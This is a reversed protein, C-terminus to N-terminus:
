ATMKQENKELRTYLIGNKELNLAGMLGAKGALLHIQNAIQKSSFDHTTNIAMVVSQNLLHFVDFTYGALAAPPNLYEQKFHQIFEPNMTSVLATSHEATSGWALFNNKGDAIKPENALSFHLINNSRAVPAVLLGNEPGQTLLVNLHHVNIFKQLVQAANKNGPIQDLTYFSYNIKSDKLQDRGIEMAALMNRGIFANKNSFPAYIGVHITTMAAGKDFRDAASCFGSLMLFAFLVGM